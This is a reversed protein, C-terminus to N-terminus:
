CTDRRLVSTVFRVIEDRSPFLNPHNLLVAEQVQAVSRQGDCYSLVCNRAKGSASLQPVHDPQNRSFQARGIIEGRWTSQSFQRGSLPDSVTWAILNDAPRAMVSVDLMSGARVAIAEDIPLFAQARRISQEALPSNTMSVGPALECEFWGALGHLMGDRQVTLQAQWSFFDPNDLRFDIEGLTAGTSLLDGPQLDIHHSANVSHERIWRLEAPIEPAAWSDALSRCKESEVAAVCVTVQQPILRGGPNLFRKRADAMMAAIGYDFGFCGVHDCIVIDAPEPLLTQFTSRDFFTAKKAWGARAYSERALEIAPSSDILDVHSAGAQLCLLGLVGTGCGADVVRDGPNLVAGIASRYRDLRHPLSLYHLHEELVGPM